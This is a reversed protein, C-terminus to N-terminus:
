IFTTEMRDELGEKKSEGWQVFIVTVEYTGCCGGSFCVTVYETCSLKFM